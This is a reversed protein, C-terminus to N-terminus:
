ECVSELEKMYEKARIKREMYDPTRTKKYHCSHCLSQLNDWDLALPDDKSKIPNIHDVVDAPTIINDLECFICIPNEAIFANRL